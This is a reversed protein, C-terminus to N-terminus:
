SGGHAKGNKGRLEESRKDCILPVRRKLVNPYYSRVSNKVKVTLKNGNNKVIYKSNQLEYSVM